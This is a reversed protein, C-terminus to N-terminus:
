GGPNLKHTALSNEETLVGYNLAFRQTQLDNYIQVSNFLHPARAFFEVPQDGTGVSGFWGSGALSGSAHTHSQAPTNATDIGSPMVHYWGNSALSKTHDVKVYNCKIRNGASDTLEIIKTAGVAIDVVKCFTKIREGM